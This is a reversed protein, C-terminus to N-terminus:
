TLFNISVNLLLSPAFFSTRFYCDLVTVIGDVYDLWNSFMSTTLREVDVVTRHQLLCEVYGGRLRTRHYLTRAAGFRLKLKGLGLAM